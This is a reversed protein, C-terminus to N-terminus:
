TPSSWPSFTPMKKRPTSPTTLTQLRYDPTLTDCCVVLFSLVLDLFKEDSALCELVDPDGSLNILNTLAHEAVKQILTLLQSHYLM